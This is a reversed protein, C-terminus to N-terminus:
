TEEFPTSYDPQHLYYIDLYDTRLRQLSEDIARFIAHRSLGAQDDAEGMKLGVKSALVVRSRRGELIRGTIEESAGNNYVNATDVFNVGQDLAFDVMRRATAEDCQAGFTMTGLCARSVELNTHQLMDSNLACRWNSREDPAPAPLGGSPMVAQSIVTPIASIRM